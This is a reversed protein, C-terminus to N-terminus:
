TACDDTFVKGHISFYSYQLCSPWLYVVSQKLSSFRRHSSPSVTLRWSIHKIQRLKTVAHRNELIRDKGNLVVFLLDMVGAISESVKHMNHFVITFLRLPQRNISESFRSTKVTRTQLAEGVM